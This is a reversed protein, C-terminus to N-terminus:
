LRIIKIEFLNGNEDQILILGVDKKAIIKSRHYMVHGGTHMMLVVDKKTNGAECNLTM